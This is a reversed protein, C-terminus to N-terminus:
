RYIGGCDDGSSSVDTSTAVQRDTIGKVKTKLEIEQIEAIKEMGDKIVNLIELIAATTTKLAIVEGPLEVLIQGYQVNSKLDKVEVESRGESDSTEVIGDKSTLHYKEAIGAMLRPNDVGLHVKWNTEEPIGLNWGAKKMLGNRIENVTEYAMKEYQPLQEATMDMDPPFIYLWTRGGDKFSRELIATVFKDKYPIQAKSRQINRYRAGVKYYKLDGEHLVLLKYCLHHVRGTGVRAYNKAVDTVGRTYVQLKSSTILKDLELGRPGKKYIKPKGKPNQCILFGDRCLKSATRSINSSEYGTLGAVKTQAIGDALLGYIRLSSEDTRLPRSM